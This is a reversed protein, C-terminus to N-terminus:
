FPRMTVAARLRMLADLDPGGVGLHVTPTVPAFSTLPGIELHLPSASGAAKRVADLAVLLERDRLNTPAVLTLHPAIREREAAGLARRLGDLETALPQPVLLVVGIRHRM